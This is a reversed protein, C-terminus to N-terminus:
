GFMRHKLTEVRLNPRATRRGYVHGCHSPFGIEVATDRGRPTERSRMFSSRGVQGIQRRDDLSVADNLGLVQHQELRRRCRHRVAIGEAHSPRSRSDTTCASDCGARRPQDVRRDAAQEDRTWPSRVGECGYAMAANGLGPMVSRRTAHDDATGLRQAFRRPVSPRCTGGHPQDLQVQRPASSCSSAAESCGVLEVLDERQGGSRAARRRESAQLQVDRSCSRSWGAPRATRSNRRWHPGVHILTDPPELGVLAVM